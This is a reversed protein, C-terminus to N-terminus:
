RTVRRSRSGAETVGVRPLRESTGHGAGWAFHDITPPHGTLTVATECNRAGFLLHEGDGNTVRDFLVAVAIGGLKTFHDPLAEDILRRLDVGLGTSEEALPVIERTPLVRM